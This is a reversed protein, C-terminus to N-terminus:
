LEKFLSRLWVTQCAACSAVIYDAECSSLHVTVLIKMIYSLFFVMNLIYYIILIIKTIQVVRTLLDYTQTSYRKDGKVSNLMRLYSLGFGNSKLHDVLGFKSNSIL